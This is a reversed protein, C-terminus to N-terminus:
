EILAVIRRKLPANNRQLVINPGGQSNVAGTIIQVPSDLNGNGQLTLSAGRPQYLAGWLQLNPHAQLHMEPNVTSASNTCPSDISGCSTDINGDATYKVLSNRQDQWLVTPEFTDLNQPVANSEPNLGHLTFVNHNGTQIDVSGFHLNSAIAQVASPVQLGPYTDDTFIFMEGADTPAQLVGGVLNRGTNDTVSANSDQSFVTTGTTGAFVYRGPGFTASNNSGQLSMGGFFVFNGFAGGDFRLAGNIRLPQGTATTGLIDTAYYNGPACVGGPCVLGMDGGPVPVNALGSPAAPQGKDRMPDLFDSSDTMNQTANPWDGSVTGRTATFTSDVSAAGQTSGAPSASSALFVGGAEITANGGLHVDEGPGNPGPDNQRNLGYLSGAVVSDMIGATARSAVMAHTNGLIASFLQPVREVVRTTVWYDITVGPVTPAPSTNNAQMTVTQNTNASPNFGNQVAYQCGKLLNGTAGSCASPSAPCQANTGCVIDGTQKVVAYVAQAAARAAGDAASQANKKVFYGWGLDVALGLIGFMAFLAATVMVLAQGNRSRNLKRM